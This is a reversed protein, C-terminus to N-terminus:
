RFLGRGVGCIPTITDGLQSYWRTYYDEGGGVGITIHARAYVRLGDKRVYERIDADYSWEGGLDPHRRLQEILRDCKRRRSV